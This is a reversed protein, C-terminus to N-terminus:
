YPCTSCTYKSRAPATYVPKERYVVVPESYLSRSVMVGSNGCPDCPVCQVVPPCPDCVNVRRVVKRVRVPRVVTTKKVVVTQRCPLCSDFAMAAGSGVIGVMALALLPRKCKQMISM